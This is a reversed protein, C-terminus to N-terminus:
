YHAGLPLKSDLSFLVTRMTDTMSGDVTSTHQDTDGLTGLQIRGVYEDLKRSDDRFPSSPLSSLITLNATNKERWHCSVEEAATRPM